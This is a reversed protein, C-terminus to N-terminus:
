ARCGSGPLAALCSVARRDFTRTRVIAGDVRAEGSVPSSTLHDAVGSGARGRVHPLEPPERHVAAAFRSSTRAAAADLASFLIKPARGCMRRSEHWSARPPSLRWKMAEAYTRGESRESAALWATRFWPQGDLLRVFQQGVMGTAGLIGVELQRGGGIDVASM